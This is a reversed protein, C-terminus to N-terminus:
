YKVAPQFLIKINSLIYEKIGRQLTKPLFMYDTKNQKQLLFYGFKICIYTYTRWMCSLALSGVRMLPEAVSFFSPHTLCGSSPILLTGQPSWLTVASHLFLLLKVQWIPPDFLFQSQYDTRMCLAGLELEQTYNFPPCIFM